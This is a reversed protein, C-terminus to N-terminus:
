PAIRAGDSRTTRQGSLYPSDLRKAVVGELGLLCAEAFYATGPGVIGESMVLGPHGCRAVVARLRDRREVLPRDVLVEYADFLLDFAMFTAPTSESVMKIKRKSRAHERKQLAAFDPKGGRLVVVEGDLVTGRDLTSLFDFEPYRGTM